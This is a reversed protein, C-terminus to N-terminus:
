KQQICRVANTDSSNSNNARYSDADFRMYWYAESAWIYPAGGERMIEGNKKAQANEYSRTKNMEASLDVSPIYM